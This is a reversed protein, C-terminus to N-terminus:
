DQPWFPIGMGQQALAEAENYFEIMMHRARTIHKEAKREDGVAEAAYGKALKKLIRDFLQMAARTQANDVIEIERLYPYGNQAGGYKSLRDRIDRFRTYHDMGDSDIEVALGYLDKTRSDDGYPPSSLTAVLRAYSTDVTGGPHEIFIFDDLAEETLRRLRRKQWGGAEQQKAAPLRGSMTLVPKYSENPPFLDANALHWLLQNVRRLHVMEGTAVLLLYQRIVKLDQAMTPWRDGPAEEPSKLSFLAFLYEVALTLEMPGLDNILEAVM